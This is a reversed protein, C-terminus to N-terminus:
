SSLFLFNLAVHIQNRDPDDNKVKLYNVLAIGGGKQSPLFLIENWSVDCSTVIIIFLVYYNDVYISKSISIKNLSKKEQAFKKNFRLDTLSTTSKIQQTSKNWFKENLNSTAQTTKHDRACFSTNFRNCVYTTMKVSRVCLEQLLLYRICIDSQKHIVYAITKFSPIVLGWWLFTGEPYVMENASTGVKGWVIFNKKNEHVIESFTLIIEFAVLLAM